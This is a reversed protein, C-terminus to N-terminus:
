QRSCTVGITLLSAVRWLLCSPTLDVFKRHFTGRQKSIIGSMEVMEMLSCVSGKGLLTHVPTYNHDARSGPALEVRILPRFM